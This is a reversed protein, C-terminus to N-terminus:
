PMQHLIILGCLVGAVDAILDKYSLLHHPPRRWDVLEKGLGITLPVSFSIRYAVSPNLSAARECYYYITTSLMMSFTFHKLKDFGLWDDTGTKGATTQVPGAVLVGGFLLLGALGVAILRM